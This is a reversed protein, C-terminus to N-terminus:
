RFAQRAVSVEAWGDAVRASGDLASLLAPAAIVPAGTDDARVPLRAEGRAGSVTVILPASDAGFGALALLLALTGTM